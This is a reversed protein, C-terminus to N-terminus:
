DQGQQPRQCPFPLSSGGLKEDEVTLPQGRKILRLDEGFLGTEEDIEILAQEDATAGIYGSVGASRSVAAYSCYRVTLKLSAPLM